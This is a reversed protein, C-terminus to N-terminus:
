DDIVFNTVQTVVKQASVKTLPPYKYVSGNTIMTDMANKVQTVTIDDKVNKFTWTKEGSMTGFKLQLQTGATAM